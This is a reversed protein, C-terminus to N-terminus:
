ILYAFYIGAESEVGTMGNYHSSILLIGVNHFYFHFKLPFYIFKCSTFKFIILRKWKTYILFYFCFILRSWFVLIWIHSVQIKYHWWQYRYLISHITSVSTAVCFAVRTEQQISLLWFQLSCSGVLMSMKPNLHYNNCHHFSQHM